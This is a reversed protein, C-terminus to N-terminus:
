NGGAAANDFAGLCVDLWEERKVGAGLALALAVGIASGMLEAFGSAPFELNVKVDDM